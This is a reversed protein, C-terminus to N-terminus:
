IIGGCDAVCNIIYEVEKKTLDPYLPLSVLHEGLYMTNPLFTKKYTDYAPMKHLPLFHVSCFVGKNRMMKLFEERNEVLIPYLHLGKRQYGFAENYRRVIELRKKDMKPLKKLQELGIAAQIDTMNMKWGPFIIKYEFATGEKYREFGNKTQGHSRALKFFELLNSDNFAIMGGEASALNKTPYFSYCFIGKKGECMKKDIRHACDHVTRDSDWEVPNGTLHVAVAADKKTLHGRVDRMVMTEEDVDVFVIKARCHTVVAASATFTLSPVYVKSEESIALVQLALFLASTGSDVAVAHKAGVYKAFAREFEATKPGMTLWNSRMVEVVANIEKNDISPKSFPIKTM